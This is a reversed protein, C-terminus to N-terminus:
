ATITHGKVIGVITGAGSADITLAKATTLQQGELDPMTLNSGAVLGITPFLVTEVASASEGDGIDVTIAAGCNLWLSDLCFARGTSPAAKIVECGSADASSFIVGWDDDGAEPGLTMPTAVIAM